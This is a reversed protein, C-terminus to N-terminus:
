AEAGGMRHHMVLKRATFGNAEFFNKTLRDGPLAMADVGVCNQRGLWDLIQAMLADGVGVGRAQQEVFIDDIIGLRSGNDLTEVRCVSYGVVVGDLTGTLLQVAGDALAARFRQEYPKAPAERAAWVAGGRLIELEAVAVGVLEALRTVDTEIAPRAEEM